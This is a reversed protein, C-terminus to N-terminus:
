SEGKSSVHMLGHSAHSGTQRWHRQPQLTQGAAENPPMQAPACPAAKDPSMQAWMCPAAEHPPTRTPACPAAWQTTDLRHAPHQSVPCHRPQTCPVAETAWQGCLRRTTCFLSSSVQGKCKMHTAATATVMPQLPGLTGTQNEPCHGRPPDPHVGKRLWHQMGPGSWKM